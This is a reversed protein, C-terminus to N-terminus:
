VQNGHIYYVNQNHIVSREQWGSSYLLDSMDPRIHQKMFLRPNLSATDVELLMLSNPPTWNPGSEDSAPKWSEIPLAFQYQGEVNVMSLARYDYEIPAYSSSEVLSTVEKPQSPDSVDFLSIKVGEVTTIPEDTAEREQPLNNLNVQQGIGLLYDNDLPHLYSSFGPIELPGDFRTSSNLQPPVAPRLNEPSFQGQSRDESCAALVLIILVIVVWCLLDGTNRPKPHSM